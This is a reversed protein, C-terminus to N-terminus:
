VDPNELRIMERAYQIPTIGLRKAVALQSSTLEVRSTARGAPARTVGAVVTRRAAPPARSTSTTKKETEDSEEEFYNPFSEKVSKNLEAFYRPSEVPIGKELLEEHVGFAFATMRKNTNFWPNEDVWGQMTETLKVQQRQPQQTQQGAPQGKPDDEPFEIPRIHNQAESRAAARALKGQLEAALTTNGTELASKLSEQIASMESEASQKTSELMTKHGSSVMKRLSQNEAHVRKAFEVATETERQWAEKARREEHYEWKMQKIRDQVGKTYQGIEEDEPIASKTGPIPPKRGRDEPPTDDKVVIEIDDDGEPSSGPVVKKEVPDTSLDIESELTEVPM